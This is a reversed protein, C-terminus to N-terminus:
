KGGGLTVDKYALTVYATQQLAFSEILEPSNDSRKGDFRVPKDSLTYAARM